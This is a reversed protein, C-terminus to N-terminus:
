AFEIDPNLQKPKIQNGSHGGSGHMGGRGDFGAIGDFKQNRKQMIIVERPQGM